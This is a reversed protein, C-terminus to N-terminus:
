EQEAPLDAPRGELAIDGRARLTVRPGGSGMTGTARAPTGPATAEADLGPVDLDIAGHRSEADLEFRSGEPVDLHIEGDTATAEITQTVPLGPALHVDGHEVRVQVPGAVGEVRVDAFTTQIETGGRVDTARVGAHRAHVVVDGPWARRAEFEGYSARAKVGGAERVSLRGHQVDLDAQGAVDSVEM